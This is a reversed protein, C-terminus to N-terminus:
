GPPKGLWHVGPFSYLGPVYLKIKRELSIGIKIITEALKCMEVFSVISAKSSELRYYLFIFPLTKNWPDIFKKLFLKRYNVFLRGSLVM